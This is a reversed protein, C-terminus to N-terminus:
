SHIMENYKKEQKSETKAKTAKFNLDEISIDKGTEGSRKMRHNAIKELDTKTGNEQRFRYPLFETQIM